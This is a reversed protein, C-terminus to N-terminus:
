QAQDRDGQRTKVEPTGYRERGMKLMASTEVTETMANAAAAVKAADCRLALKNITQGDEPMCRGALMIAAEQQPRGREDFPRNSDTTM